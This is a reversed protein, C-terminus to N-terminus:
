ELEFHCRHGLLHGCPGDAEPSRMPALPQLGHDRALGPHLVRRRLLLGLGRRLDRRLLYVRLLNHDDHQDGDNYHRWDNRNHDHQNSDGHDHHDGGPLMRGWRPLSRMYQRRLMGVRCRFLRGGAHLKRRYIRAAGRLM